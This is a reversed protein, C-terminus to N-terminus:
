RPSARLIWLCEQRAAEYAAANFGGDIDYIWQGRAFADAKDAWLLARRWRDIMMGKPEGREAYDAYHQELINRTLENANCADKTANVYTRLLHM